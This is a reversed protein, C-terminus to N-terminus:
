KVYDSVFMRISGDSDSHQWIVLKKGNKMIAKPQAADYHEFGINDNISDPITWNMDEASYERKFVKKNKGDSQTWVVLIDGNEDVAGDFDFYDVDSQAFSLAESISQPHAWRKNAKDYRSMFLRMHHLDSQRWLIVADGSDNSIFHPRGDVGSRSLTFYDDRSVPHTWVKTEPDYESLFGHDNDYDNEIWILRVYGSPSLYVHPAKAVHSAPNFNDYLSQPMIWTDNSTNFEALYSKQYNGSNPYQWTMIETGNDNLAIEPSNFYQWGNIALADDLSAPLRWTKQSINYDAYFIYDKRDIWANWVMSVKQGNVAFRGIPYSGSVAPSLTINTIETFRRSTANYDYFYFTNNDDRTCFTLRKDVVVDYYDFAGDYYSGLRTSHYDIADDEDPHSWRDASVNYESQYLKDEYPVQLLNSQYQRWLITINGREDITDFVVHADDAHNGNPNFSESLCRPTNWGAQRVQPVCTEKEAEKNCGSL